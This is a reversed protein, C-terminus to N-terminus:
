GLLLKNETMYFLCYIFSHVIKMCNDVNKHKRNLGSLMITNHTLIQSQMVTNWM